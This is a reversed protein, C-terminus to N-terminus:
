VASCSGTMRFHRGLLRFSGRSDSSSLNALFSFKDTDQPFNDIFIIKSTVPINLISSVARKVVCFSLLQQINLALWLTNCFTPQTPKGFQSSFSIRSMIWYIPNNLAPRSLSHLAPVSSSFTVDHLIRRTPPFIKHVAACYKRSHDLKPSFVRIYCRQHCKLIKELFVKNHPLAFLYM